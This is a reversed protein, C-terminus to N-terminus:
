QELSSETNRVYVPNSKKAIQTYLFTKCFSDTKSYSHFNCHSGDDFSLACTKIYVFCFSFRLFTKYAFLWVSKLFSSM